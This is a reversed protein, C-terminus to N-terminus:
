WRLAEECRSARAARLAYRKAVSMGPQRLEGGNRGMPSASSPCAFTAARSFAPSAAERRDVFGATELEYGVARVWKQVNERYMFTRSQAPSGKRRVKAQRQLAGRKTITGMATDSGMTCEAPLGTLYLFGVRPNHGGLPHPKHAPLLPEAQESFRENWTHRMVHSTLKAPLGPCAERLQAFLKDISAQSLADGEDSVLIQPIARAAKM